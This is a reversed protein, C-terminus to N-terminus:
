LTRVPQTGLAQIRLREDDDYIMIQVMGRRRLADVLEVAIREREGKSLELWDEDITGVFARGAGEGNRYGRVLHPSFAKLEERGFRDLDKAPAQMQVLGWGLAGIAVAIVLARAMQQWPWSRLGPIGSSSPLSSDKDDLASRMLERASERPAEAESAGPECVESEPQTDEPRSSSAAPQSPRAIRTERYVDSLPAYLFRNKLESLACADRYSSATVSGTIETKLAAELESVWLESVADPSVGIAQLEISLVAVSRCLLGVLIVTAEPDERSGIEGRLLIRQEHATPYELDLCWAIRDLDNAEPEGGAARRRIAEAIERLAESEFVSAVGSEPKAPPMLRDAVNGWDRSDWVEDTVRELLAANYTVIARLVRPAFFSSGLEAKRSRLSRLQIEARLEDDDMNAATFFEAEIESLRAEDSVEAEAAQCIANLRPTLSVPDHRISSSAGATGGACLLTILYDLVPIHQAIEPLWQAENGLVLDLLDLVGLRDTGLAFPLTSRLQSIPVRFAIQRISATFEQLQRDLEALSGADRERGSELLEGILEDLARGAGAIGHGGESLGSPALVGWASRLARLAEIRPKLSAAVSITESDPRDSDNV